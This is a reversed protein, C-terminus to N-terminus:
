QKVRSREAIRISARLGAELGAIWAKAAPATPQEASCGRLQCWTLASDESRHLAKQVTLVTRYRARLRSLLSDQSILKPM